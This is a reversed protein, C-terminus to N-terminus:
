LQYHHASFERDSGKLEGSIIDNIVKNIEEQHIGELDDTTLLYETLENKDYASKREQWNKYYRGQDLMGLHEWYYVQDGIWITFDPKIVWSLGELQIEREYEFKLIGKERQKLLSRFIIYEVRSRVFVDKEPELNGIIASPPEFLSTQRVLLSSRERAIDLPSTEEDKLFIFMRHTSRTLATYLLERTLLGRRSPLVVFVNKFESGQAKHITIAYAQEFYDEPSIYKLPGEDRDPFYWAPNRKWRKRHDCFIGISGNSLALVVDGASKEWRYLNSVCIVKESHVFQKYYRSDEIYNSKYDRQITRNLPIAGGRGSNYPTLIQFIDVNLSAPNNKKVFGNKYLGFLLNLNTVPYDTFEDGLEEKILTDLKKQIAQELDNTSSWLEVHLGDSIEGGAKLKELGEQFYRNGGVFLDAYDLIGEDFKQRCNTQLRVLLPSKTGYERTLYAIIDYLPRGCGIPPLQNEDGVLILRRIRDPGTVELTKLLVAMKELDLMSCEDIVLNEIRNESSLHPIDEFREFHDLYERYDHRCLFRDITEAHKFGAEKRARLTAKGTPALLTIEENQEEFIEIVKQLAKTKGSGPRGTIVFFSHKLAGSLLQSREDLFIDKQFSKNEKSLHKAEEALYENVWKIDVDYEERSILTQILNQIFQEAAHIEKLYVFTENEREVLSFRESFHATYPEQSLSQKSLGLKEKYFLPYTKIAEFIQELSLYSHGQRKKQKLLDTALARIREKGFPTLNQLQRDRKTQYRRDPFMGIDIAFVDIANDNDEPDEYEKTEAIYRECLLYPNDCLEDFSLPSGGFPPQKYDDPTLIRKIQKFTLSFLSLKKLIDSMGKRDRLSNRVIEIEDTWEAISEPISEVSEFLDFVADLPTKEPFADIIASALEEGDHLVEDLLFAVIRGLSPYLGRNSWATELLEGIRETQEDMNVIGHDNAHEIANALRYLLYICQDDNVESSVYKFCPILSEEEIFVQVDQLLSEDQPHQEIHHLYEHYPLLIGTQEFDHSIQRAWNVKPFNKMRPSSNRKKELEDDSFDFHTADGVRSVMSCGLLAYKYEEASIPNSYNLYFFVISHEPELRNFYRNTIRELNPPYDGQRRKKNKDRVFSLKFPWTFVSYPELSEEITKDIDDFPHDHQVDCKDRSFANASWFCPPIYDPVEDLKGKCHDQELDEDKNRALRESLLSHPGVCYSNGKPDKCIHGNWKNDHWAMRVTIHNPM